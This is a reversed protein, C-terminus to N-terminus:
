EKEKRNFSQYLVNQDCSKGGGAGGLVEGGGREDLDMTKREEKMLFVLLCVFSLGKFVHFFGCYVCVSMCVYVCVTFVCFDFVRSYSCIFFISSVASKTKTKKNAQKSIQKPERNNPM